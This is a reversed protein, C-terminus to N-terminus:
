GEGGFDEELGERMLDEVVPGVTRALANEFDAALPPKEKRIWSGAPSRASIIRFTFYTSGGRGMRVMGDMNGEGEYRGGWDYESREIQEGSFNAETHTRKKRMSAGLRKVESYLPVPIFSVFHARGKGEQNPTGWRFPVILYPVGKKSVRSKKGYPYTEKMDVRPTGKVIREMYPSETYVEADFPGNRKTKV